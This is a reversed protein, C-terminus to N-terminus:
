YMYGVTHQELVINLKNKKINYKTKYNYLRTSTKDPTRTLLVNDTSKSLAGAATHYDVVHIRILILETIPISRQKINVHM